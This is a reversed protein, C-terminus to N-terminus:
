QCRKGRDAAIALVWPDRGSQAGHVLRDVRRDAAHREARDGMRLALELAVLSAERTEGAYRARGLAERAQAEDCAAMAAMARYLEISTFGPYVDAAQSLFRYARRAADREEANRRIRIGARAGDRALPRLLQLGRVWGGIARANAHGGVQQVEREVDADSVDRDLMRGVRYGPGIINLPSMTPASGLRVFLSQRDQVQGLQWQPSRWLYQVAPAQERRTHDVVVANVDFHELEADLVAPDSFSNTVRQIFGPGYFPVRGDVLFRAKPVAFMLPWSDQIPALIRPHEVHANIVDAAAFAHGLRPEGFGIPVFPELRPSALVAWAVSAALTIPMIRRLGRLWELQALGAGIFPATLLLQHAVFRLSRFAMITFLVCLVGYALGYRSSRTVPRMAAVVLMAAVVPGILLYLPHEPSWPAWETVVERYEPRWLHTVADTVIDLGFPNVVTAMVQLAVLLAMSAFAQTRISFALFLLGIVLGLLHSGHLNVWVVQMLALAALIWARSRRSGQKSFLAYIGVLLLAPFVLGVIQPRVTFRIRALPSFCIAIVATLPAAAPSGRGLWQGLLVLSWGLLALLLCKIVILANPGLHDYVLWTLLDYGWEYNSWAQPEPKWFSFLDVTPVRGLEAIQRGQALHGYTDVSYLPFAGVIFFAAACIGGSWTRSVPSHKDSGRQADFKV